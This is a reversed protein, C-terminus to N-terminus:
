VIRSVDSRVILINGAVLQRFIFSIDFTQQIKIKENFHKTVFEFEILIVIYM